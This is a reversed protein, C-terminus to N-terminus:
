IWALTTAAVPAVTALRMNSGNHNQKDLSCGESVHGGSQRDADQTRKEVGLFEPPNSTEM